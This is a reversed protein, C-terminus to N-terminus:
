AFAPRMSEHGHRPSQWQALAPPYRTFLWIREGSLLSFLLVGEGWLPSSRPSPPNKYSENTQPMAESFSLRGTSEILHCPTGIQSVTPRSPFPWIEMAKVIPSLFRRYFGRLYLLFRERTKLLPLGRGVYGRLEVDVLPRNFEM